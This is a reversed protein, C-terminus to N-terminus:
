LWGQVIWHEAEEALEIYRWALPRWKDPTRPTPEALHLLALRARLLARYRWHFVLLERPPQDDLRESLRRLLELLVWGAGLRACDLGLFVIEEFPDVSRLGPNFELCDIVAPPDTMCVHEPRLDGHGEVIRGAAVRIDMAPRAAELDGNMREILDAVRTGDLAFAPDGLVRATEAHEKAFRAAYDGLGIEAPPLGRYFAALMDAVRAIMAPKALGAEIMRDLFCDEPLRRMEVLWDIVRGPGDLALAGDPRLTLSRAGLYVDPALRRNLRVEETVFHRRLAPTSFDLFPYRVPKKLKLVRDGALFVWSMHTERAEVARPKHPYAAPDALFRVKDAIPPEPLDALEAM